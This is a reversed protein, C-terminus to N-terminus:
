DRKHGKEGQQHDHNGGHGRHMFLHLLPCALIILYPLVGLVHTLHEIALLTAAVGLLGWVAWHIGFGNKMSVPNENSM